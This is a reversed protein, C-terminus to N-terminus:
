QGSHTRGQAFQYLFVALERTGSASGASGTTTGSYILPWSRTLALRGAAAPGFTSRVFPAVGRDQGDIPTGLNVIGSVHRDALFRGITGHQGAQYYAYSNAVGDLNIVPRDAYYGIVGADWSALVTNPALNASIWQGADRDAIAISYAHPDAIRRAEYLGAAVLPILLIASVPLLARAPSRTAPAELVAAEAFDAMAMVLVFILYIAAPCYYWLWQQSQLIQYYAVVLLGFAAFWSTSSTFDAVRGFRSRRRPGHSRRYGWAGLAGAVVAVLVLTAAREATLPARKTLGSIQEWLGFLLQNSVLYGALALTPLAFLQALPGISARLATRAEALTWLGLVGVLIVSDTRALLTLALLLGIAWRDRASGTTLFRGRRAAGVAIVAADLVVLVGSEMGNVFVKVVFPNAAVAVLAVAVVGTCWRAARDAQDPRRADLRSWGGIAQGTTWAVLMLAGGYCLAQFGVLARAAATGNLGLRYAVSAMLMWLPHYGNTRDIGDFTSGHGHALNRAIGFYYFADDFTLSFVANRWAVIVVLWALGVLGAAVLLVTTPSVRRNPGASATM